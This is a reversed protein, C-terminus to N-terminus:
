IFENNEEGRPRISQAYERPSIEYEARFARYFGAYDSFGCM